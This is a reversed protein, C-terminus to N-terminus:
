SNHTFNSKFYRALTLVLAVGSNNIEGEMNRYAAVLVVAETADGRPAHLMAYVNEGRYENGAARYEYKQRAVKLGSERFIDGIKTTIRFELTQDARLMHM